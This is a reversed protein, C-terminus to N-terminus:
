NVIIFDRSKGRINVIRTLTTKNAVKRNYTHRSICPLFSYKLFEALHTLNTKDVLQLNNDFIQRPM